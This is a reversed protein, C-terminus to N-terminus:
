GCQMNEQQRVPIENNLTANLYHYICIIWEDSRLKSMDILCSELKSTDQLVGKM